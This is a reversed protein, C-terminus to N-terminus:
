TFNRKNKVKCHLQVQGEMSHFRTLLAMLNKPWIGQLADANWRPWFTHLKKTNVSHLVSLPLKEMQLITVVQNLLTIFSDHEHTDSRQANM